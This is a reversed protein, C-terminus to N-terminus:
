IRRIEDQWRRVDDRRYPSTTLEHRAFKCGVALLPLVPDSHADEVTGTLTAVLVSVAADSYDRGGRGLGTGEAVEALGVFFHRWLRGSGCTM